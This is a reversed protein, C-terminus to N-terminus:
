SDYSVRVDWLFKKIVYIIPKIILLSLTIQFDYIIYAINMIDGIWVKTLIGARMLFRLTNKLLLAPINVFTHIPSICTQEFNLIIFLYNVIKKKYMKPNWGEDFVSYLTKTQVSNVTKLIQHLTFGSFLYLFFMKNNNFSFNIKLV